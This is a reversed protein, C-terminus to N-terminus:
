YMIPECLFNVKSPVYGIWFNHDPLESMLIDLSEIADEITEFCEIVNINKLPNEQGCLYFQLKM